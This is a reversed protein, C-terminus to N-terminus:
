KKSFVRTVPKIAVILFIILYWYWDLVLIGDWLKAIMLIIAMSGIKICGVDLWNMKKIKDNFFKM